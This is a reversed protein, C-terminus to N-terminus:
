QMRQTLLYEYEEPNAGFIEKRMDNWMGFNVMTNDMGASGMIKRRYLWMFDSQEHNYDYKVWLPRLYSLPLCITREGLTKWWCDIKCQVNVGMESFFYKAFDSLINGNAFMDSYTYEKAIFENASYTEHRKVAMSVDSFLVILDDVGGFYFMQSEMFPLLLYANFLIIRESQKGEGANEELPYREILDTLEDIVGPMTVRTDSRTKLVYQFGLEKAKKVGELGAVRQYNISGDGSEKPMPTLVLVCNKEKELSSITEDDEGEWTSVIVTIGPYCKGYFRVTELTFNEELRPQGTMLICSKKTDKGSYYLWDNYDEAMKPYLDYTIYCNSEEEVAMSYPMMLNCAFDRSGKNEGFLRALKLVPKQIVKYMLALSRMFDKKQKIKKAVRIANM